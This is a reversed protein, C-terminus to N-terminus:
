FDNAKLIMKFNKEIERVRKALEDLYAFRAVNKLWVGNPKAPFGSSYVGPKLISHHVGTSGTLHVQDGLELHGAILAGGGILCNAGITVSGAIATCGAIATRAGISVNHGIQVLNDIIVGSHITTDKVFGRDITTNSGIEVKDGIIVTGLHPMKVWGEKSPAFGFGDSGLVVGSHILCQSGIKVGDYLTVKAKLETQKAISCANGLVCHAGLSVGEEINVEDGLVVYPGIYSEPSINCNKGMVVTPHIGAKFEPLNKQFLNAAKALCLRPDDSIIANIPCNIAEEKGVIAASAQTEFLQKRYQKSTVFSLDGCRATDLSAIGTIKCSPDGKLEAGIQDAIEKLTITFV